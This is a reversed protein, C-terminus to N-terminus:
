RNEGFFDVYVNVNFDPLFYIKGSKLIYNSKESIGDINLTIKLHSSIIEM